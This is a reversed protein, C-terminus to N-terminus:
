FPIDEGHIARQRESYANEVDEPDGVRFDVSPAKFRKWGGGDGYDVGTRRSVAARFDSLSKLDIGRAHGGNELIPHMSPTGDGDVTRQYEKIHIANRCTGRWGLIKKAREGLVRPKDYPSAGLLRAERYLTSTALRGNGDLDDPVIGSAAIEHLVELVPDSMIKDARKAETTIPRGILERDVEYKLLYGLVVGPDLEWYPKWYDRAETSDPNDFMNAVEIVTWRRDDDEIHVAQESNTTAIIRHVNKGTFSALFKQEYTWRPSSIFGKLINAQKASGAFLSEEALVFTSGFMGRNFRDFLRESDAVEQVQEDRLVRSLMNGMFSKGGGQAGRLALATGPHLSWPRQVGDALFSMVWHALDKDGGCVIREVYDVWLSVDGAKPKVRWGQFVNWGPGDYDPSDIVIGDYELRDPDRIWLDSMQATKGNAMCTLPKARLTFDRLPYCIGSPQHLFEVRGEVMMLAWEASMREVVDYPLDQPAEEPLNKGQQIVRVLERESLPGKDGFESDPDAFEDNVARIIEELQDNDAGRARASAGVHFLFTNRGEMPKGETPRKFGGASKKRERPKRARAKPKPTLAAFVTDAMLGESVHCDAEVYEWQVPHDDTVTAIVTASRWALVRRENGFAPLNMQSGDGDNQKPFVEKAHEIVDPALVADRKAELYARMREAPVWDRTFAIIHVGGSKSRAILCPDQWAKIIAEVEDDSELVPYLDVDIAGWKVMGDRLPSLGLSTEGKLHRAWDQDSVGRKITRYDPVSKGDERQKMSTFTLFREENGAFINKFEQDM